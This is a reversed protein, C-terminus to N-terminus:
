AYMNITKIKVIYYKLSTKNRILLILNKNGKKFCELELSMSILKYYSTNTIYGKGVGKSNNFSFNGCTTYGIEEYQSKKTKITLNKNLFESSNFSIYNNDDNDNNNNIIDKIIKYEKNFLKPAPNNKNVYLTEILNNNLYEISSKLHNYDSNLQEYQYKNTCQIMQKLISNLNGRKNIIKKMDYYHKIVELNPLYIISGEKFIGKSDSILLIPLLYNSIINKNLKFHSKLNDIFTVCRDKSTVDGIISITLNNKNLSSCYNKEFLSNWNQYFPSSIKLKQYNVRKSPPKKCYLEINSIATERSLKSNSLTCPYDEPFFLNISDTYLNKFELYGITRCKLYNLIRLMNTAYCNESIFYLSYVPIKILNDCTSISSKMSNVTYNIYEKTIVIYTYDEINLKNIDENKNILSNTENFVSKYVEKINCYSNRIKHKILLNNLAIKGKKNSSSMCKKSVKIKENISKCNIKNRRCLNTRETINKININSKSNHLFYDFINFLKFDSDTSYNSNKNNYNSEICQNNIIDSKNYEWLNTIVNENLRFNSKPKKIAIMITNDFVCNTFKTKFLNEFDHQNLISEPKINCNNNYSILIKCLKYLPQINGIIMFNNLHKDASFKIKEITDKALCNNKKWYDIYKIIQEFMLPHYEIIIDLNNFFIVKVPGVLSYDANSYLLYNKYYLCNEVADLNCPNNNNSNNDGRELFYTKSIFSELANIGAEKFSVFLSKYYSKDYLLSYDINFDSNSQINNNRKINKLINSLYKSICRLSKDTRKYAIKKDFMYKMVFRKAHWIHTELWGSNIVRRNLSKILQNRKKKHKKCKSTTKSNFNAIRQNLSIRFPNHSMARRRMHKPLLQHGAKTSRKNNLINVFSTLEHKRAELFDEVKIDSVNLKISTNRNITNNDYKKISNNSSYKNINLNNLSCNSAESILAMKDYQDKRIQKIKEKKKSNTTNIVLSNLSITNQQTKNSM